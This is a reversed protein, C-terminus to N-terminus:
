PLFISTSCSGSSQDCGPCSTILSAHAWGSRSTDSCLHLDPAPTRLRFGRLSSPGAGDVFVSGGADVPVVTGTALSSGVRSVLADACAVAPLGHSSSQLVLRELSALHGFAGTLASRPFYLYCSIEGGGVSFNTVRAFDPLEQRCRFRHEYRPLTCAELTRSRVEGQKARDRPLSLALASGSHRNKAM